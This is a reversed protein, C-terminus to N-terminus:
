IFGGECRVGRQMSDEVERLKSAIRKRMRNGVLGILYYAIVPDHCAQADPANADDDLECTHGCITDSAVETSMSTIVDRSQNLPVTARHPRARPTNYVRLANHKIAPSPMDLNWCHDQNRAQKVADRSAKIRAALSTFFNSPLEYSSELKPMSSEPKFRNSRARETASPMLLRRNVLLSDVIGSNIRSVQAEDRQSPERVQASTSTEENQNVSPQIKPTSCNEEQEQHASTRVLNRAAQRHGVAQATKQEGARGAIISAKKLQLEALKVQLAERQDCKKSTGKRNRNSALAAASLSADLPAAQM